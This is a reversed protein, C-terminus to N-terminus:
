GHANALCCPGKTVVKYSTQLLSIPHYYSPNALSGEKPLLVICAKKWEEPITAGLTLADNMCKLIHKHIDPTAVKLMIADISDTGPARNKTKNIAEIYEDM